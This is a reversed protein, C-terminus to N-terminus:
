EDDEEDECVELTVTANKPAPGTVTATMEYDDESFSFGNDRAAEYALDAAKDKSSAEVVVGMTRIETLTVNYKPM